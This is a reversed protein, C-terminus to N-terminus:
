AAHRQEESGYIRPRIRELLTQSTSDPKNHWDEVIEPDEALIEKYARSFDGSHEATWQTLANETEDPSIAHDRIYEQMLLMQLMNGVRLEKHNLEREPSPGIDPREFM